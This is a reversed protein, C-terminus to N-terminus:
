AWVSVDFVWWPLGGVGSGSLTVTATGAPVPMWYSAEGTGAQQGSQPVAAQPPQGDFGTRISGFAYFRLHAGAPAPQPLTLTAPQGHVSAAGAPRLLTFQASPKITVNAWQYTNPGCTQGQGCSQAPNLSHHAFQLVAQGFPLNVRGDAFVRPSGGAAGSETLRLHGRSLELSFSAVGGEGARGQGAEVCPPSTPRDVRTPRHAAYVEVDVITGVPVGNVTGLSSPQGSGPCIGNDARIHVADGPPGNFAPVETTGVPAVLNQDFPTLWVDWWDTTSSRQASVQWTIVATGPNFDALQAPSFFVGGYTKPADGGGNIATMLRSDCVYASDALARVPHVAPPPSCDSGFRAQMSGGDDSPYDSTALLDWDNVPAPTWPQLHSPTGSWSYRYSGVPAAQNAPLQPPQPSTTGLPPQGANEPAHSQATGPSSPLVQFPLRERIGLLAFVTLVTLLVAAAM